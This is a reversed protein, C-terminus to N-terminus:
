PKEKEAFKWFLWLGGWSGITLGKGCLGLQTMTPAPRCLLALLWPQGRGLLNLNFWSNVGSDVM